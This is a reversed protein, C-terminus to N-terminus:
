GHIGLPSRDPDGVRMAVSHLEHHTGVLLQSREHFQLPRYVLERHIQNRLPRAFVHTRVFLQRSKQFQFRRDARAPSSDQSAFAM